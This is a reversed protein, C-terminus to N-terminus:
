LVLEVRADLLEKAVDNGWEQFHVLGLVVLVHRTEQKWKM